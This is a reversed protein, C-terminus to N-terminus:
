RDLGPYLGEHFCSGPQLGSRQSDIIRHHLRLRQCAVAVAGDGIKHAVEADNVLLDTVRQLLVKGLAGQQRIALIHRHHRRSQSVHARIRYGSVRTNSKWYM